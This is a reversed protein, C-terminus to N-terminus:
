AFDLVGSLATADHKEWARDGIIVFETTGGLRRYTGACNGQRDVHLGIQTDVADRVEGTLGFSRYGRFLTLAQTMRQADSM